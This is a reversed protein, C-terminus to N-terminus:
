SATTTTTTAITITCPSTILLCALLHPVDNNTTRMENHWGDMWAKKWGYGDEDRSHRRYSTQQNCCNDHQNTSYQQAKDTKGRTTNTHKAHLTTDSARLKIKNTNAENE